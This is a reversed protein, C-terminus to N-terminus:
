RRLWTANKMFVYRIGQMGFNELFDYVYVTIAFKTYKELKEKDKLKKDEAKEKELVNSEKDRIKDDDQEWAGVRSISSISRDLDLLEMKRHKQSMRSHGLGRSSLGAITSLANIIFKKISGISIALKM